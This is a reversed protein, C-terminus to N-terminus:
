RERKYVEKRDGVRVVLILLRSDEIKAIVRFDGVRYKWFEGLEGTLAQGISRPNALRAV